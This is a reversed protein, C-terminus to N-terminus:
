RLLAGPGGRRSRSEGETRCRPSGGRMSMVGVNVGWSLDREQAGRQMKDLRRGPMVHSCLVSMAFEVKWDLYWDSSVELSREAGSREERGGNRAITDKRKLRFRQSWEQGSEKREREVQDPQFTEIPERNM